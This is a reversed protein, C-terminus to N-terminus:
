DSILVRSNVVGSQRCIHRDTKSALKRGFAMRRVFLCMQKERFRISWPSARLHGIGFGAALLKAWQGLGLDSCTWLHSIV